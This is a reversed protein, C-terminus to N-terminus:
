KRLWRYLRFYVKPFLAKTYGMVYVFPYRWPFCRKQFLLTNNLNYGLPSKLYDIREKLSMTMFKAFGDEAHDNDCKGVYQPLVVIKVGAKYARYTYDHDGGSHVYKDTFIGMKDVVEQPIYTLNGHACQCERYHVGDPVVFIDKLTIPNGFDFGGYTFRKGELDTTSGVLIQSSGYKEKCYADGKQLDKWFNPLIETDDNLWLYGDFDEKDALASKWSHIMGGNWFLQGTGKLLKIPFKYERATIAEFTGDTSADDTLFIKFSFPILGQHAAMQIADLCRLTKEKRNFVTLLVAINKMM